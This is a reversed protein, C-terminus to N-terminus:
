NHVKNWLEGTDYGLEDLCQVCAKAFEDRNVSIDMIEMYHAMINGEIIERERKMRMYERSKIKQEPHEERYKKM